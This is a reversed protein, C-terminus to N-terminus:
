SFDAVILRCTIILGKEDYISLSGDKNIIYYQSPEEIDTYQSKDDRKAATPKTIHANVLSGTALFLILLSKKM